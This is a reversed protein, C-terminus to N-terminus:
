GQIIMWTKGFEGAALDQRRIWFYMTGVDGWMWGASDDTDIQWLLIRDAAGDRLGPVRPDTFGEPGGPNIKATVV